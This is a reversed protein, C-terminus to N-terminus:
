NFFTPYTVIKGGWKKKNQFLGQEKGSRDNLKIGSLDYYHADIKKGYEIIKWRLLDLSYLKKETDVRSRAIGWENIYKNFSSLFIGGIPIENYWALFGKQGLPELLRYEDIIDGASYPILKNEMRHQNLLEHYTLLDKKCQIETVIVVREQSRKINKKVSKKDANDLLDQLNQKLDIIFTGNDEKQFHFREVFNFDANLPHTSGRFKNKWSLLLNGLCESIESQLKDDFIVPGYSWYSFKPLLRSSATISYLFGRGFIKAIKGRGKFSQFILLQGVIDGNNSLFKLYIPESKLRSKIYDGYEKTQYITGLDSNLLRKNWNSDPEETVEISIM